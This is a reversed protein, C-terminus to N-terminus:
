RKVYYFNKKDKESFFFLYEKGGWYQGKKEVYVTNDGECVKGFLPNLKENLHAVIM